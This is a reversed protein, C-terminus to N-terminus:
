DCEKQTGINVITTGTSENLAHDAHQVPTAREAKQINSHESAITMSELHFHTHWIWIQHNMQKWIKNNELAMLVLTGAKGHRLGQNPM